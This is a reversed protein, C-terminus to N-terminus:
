VKVFNCTELSPTQQQKLSLEKVTDSLMTKTAIYDVLALILLLGLLLILGLVRVLMEISDCVLTFAVALIDLGLALTDTLVDDVLALTDKLIDGVVALTLVVAGFLAGYTPCSLGLTGEASKPAGKATGYLNKICAIDESALSRKKTESLQVFGWMTTDKCSLGGTDPTLDALGIAHGFEHGVLSRLDMVGRQVTADGWVFHIGNCLIDWEEIIPTGVCRNDAPNRADCGIHISAVAVIREADFGPISIRGFAFENRGNRVLGASPRFVATTMPKFLMERQWTHVSALVADTVFQASLGSPNRTDISYVEENHWRVNNQIHFCCPTTGPQTVNMPVIERRAEGPARSSVEGILHGGDNDDDLLLMVYYLSYNSDAVDGECWTCAEESIMVAEDPLVFSAAASVDWPPNGQSSSISRSLTATTIVLLNIRGLNLSTVILAAVTAAFGLIGVITGFVAFLRMM